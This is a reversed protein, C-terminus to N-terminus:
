VEILQPFSILDNWADPIKQTNGFIGNLEQLIYCPELSLCVNLDLLLFEIEGM